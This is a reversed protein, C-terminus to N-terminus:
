IESAPVFTCRVIMYDLTGNDRAFLVLDSDTELFTEMDAHNRRDIRSVEYSFQAGVMDTVVLADGPVLRDFFDFQGKQSSGGIILSHDYVSGWFRCPYAYISYGDWSSGMPLCVGYAPFRILGSFDKGNLQLVPMDSNAYAEPSGITRQPLIAEIRDTIKESQRGNYWGLLGRGFTLALSILILLLGLKHFINRKNKM